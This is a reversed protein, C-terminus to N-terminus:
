AARCYGRSAAGVRGTSGSHGPPRQDLMQQTWLRQDGPHDCTESDPPIGWEDMRDLAGENPDFSGTIVTSEAGTRIMELSARAGLLLGLADIIISKGAGTEGSLVSFGSYFSLELEEILAFNRIQLDRLM